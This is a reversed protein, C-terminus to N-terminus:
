TKNVHLFMQSGTKEFLVKVNRCLSKDLFNILDEETRHILAWDGWYEMYYRSPNSVHFNGILLEGAPALLDYLKGAVIRAVPTSLYDFLGLSYIFHFGGFREKLESKFLITRISGKVYDVKVRTSWKTEIASITAAAEALAKPDQDFLVFHYRECNRSEDLITQVEIVPGCGVSLVRFGAQQLHNFSNRPVEGLMRGILEIRNRVSQASATEVAHKHLLKSFTSEGRYDNAYIMKMMASDGAYGRPKLNTRAMLPCCLIFNWLQKRFYSGHQQHEERSFGSVTTNLEDLKRDLFKMFPRGENEIIARQISTRVDEPEGQCRGDLYDFFDRYVSLDYTLNSTYEKFSRRIGNRRALTTSLFDSSLPLTVLRGDSLPSDSSM